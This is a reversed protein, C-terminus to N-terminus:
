CARVEPLDEHKVTIRLSGDLRLKAPHCPFFRPLTEGIFVARHVGHPTGGIGRNDLTNDLGHPRLLQHNSVPVVAILRRQGIAIIAAPLLFRSCYVVLATLVHHSREYAHLGIAQRNQRRVPHDM